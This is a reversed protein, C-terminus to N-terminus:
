DPQFRALFSCPVLYLPYDNPLENRPREWSTELGVLFVDESYIVFLLARVYWMISFHLRAPTLGVLRKEKYFSSAKRKKLKLKAM